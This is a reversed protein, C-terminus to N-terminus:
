KSVKIQNLDIVASQNELSCPVLEKIKIKQKGFKIIDKESIVYKQNPLTRVILWMLRHVM